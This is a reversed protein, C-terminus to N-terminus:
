VAYLSFIVPMPHIQKTVSQFVICVVCIQTLLESLRHLLSHNADRGENGAHIGKHLCEIHPHSVSAIQLIVQVTMGLKM